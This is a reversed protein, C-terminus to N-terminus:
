YLNKFWLKFESGNDYIVKEPRPYRALWTNNFLQSVRASTKDREPLEVIEFWGTAPDIITMAILTLEVKKNEKQGPQEQFATIKYPGVLDTNVEKWPQMEESIIKPPVHGYRVKRKKFKQCVKCRRCFDKSQSTMGKWYVIQKLTAALRDGGPHCLYEHYFLHLYQSFSVAVTFVAM